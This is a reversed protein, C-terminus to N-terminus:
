KLLKKIEEVTEKATLVVQSNKFRITSNGHSAQSPFVYLVEEPNILGKVEQFQDKLILGSNQTAFGETPVYTTIEILKM